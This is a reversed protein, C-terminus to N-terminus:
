GRTVKRYLMTVLLGFLLYSIGIHLIAIVNGGHGAAQVFGKLSDTLQLGLSTLMSEEILKLYNRVGDWTFEFVYGAICGYAASFILSLLLAARSWGRFSTAVAIWGRKPFAVIVLRWLQRVIFNVVICLLGVPRFGMITASVQPAQRAMAVRWSPQFEVFRSSVWKLVDMVRDLPEGLRRSLWRKCPWWKSPLWESHVLNEVNAAEAASFQEGDRYVIRLEAWFQSLYMGRVETSRDVRSNCYLSVLSKEIDSQRLKINIAHGVGPFHVEARAEAKHMELLAELATTKSMGLLLEYSESALLAGLIYASPSDKCIRAQQLLSEAMALNLYPAGHGLDGQKDPASAIRSIASGNIEKAGEGMVSALEYLSAIPKQYGSYKQIEEQATIINKQGIRKEESNWDNPIEDIPIVTAEGSVARVHWNPGIKGQWEESYVNKLANRIGAGDVDPFRIDIDRLVVVDNERSVEHTWLAHTAFEKYSTVIWSRRGFKWAAHASLLAFEREEDIAVAVRGLRELLVERQDVTEDWNDRSGFLTGLFRNKVLTRLGTPDFWCRMGRAFRALTSCLGRGGDLPSVFHLPAHLAFVAPAFPIENTKTECLSKALRDFGQWDNKAVRYESWCIPDCVDGPLCGPKDSCHETPVAPSLIVPFVQPFRLILEVAVGARRNETIHWGDDKSAAPEFAETLRAGVDLVVLTDALQMPDSRSVSDLHDFLAEACSYARIKKNGFDQEEGDGEPCVELKLGLSLCAKSLRSDLAYAIAANTTAVLVTPRPM